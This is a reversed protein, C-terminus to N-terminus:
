QLYRPLTAKTIRASGTQGSRGLSRAQRGNVSWRVAGANGVDLVVEHGPKFDRKDGAHMMEAFTAAGDVRVRVWSDETADVHLAIQDPDSQIAADAAQVTGATRVPQALPPAPATEVSAGGPPTASPLAEAVPASAPPASTVRWSTRAQWLVLAGAIILVLAILVARLIRAARRQRELFARDDATVERRPAREARMSAAKDYEEIFTAVTQDPELGVEVAYARVFARSFIGGPLRSFDDRELAELAVMSIKTTTAIQRLTLGRDERAQRLLAGFEAM